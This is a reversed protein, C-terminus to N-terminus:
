HICIVTVPMFCTRSGCIMNRLFGKWGVCSKQWNKALSRVTSVFTTRHFADLRRFLMKRGSWFRAREDENESIRIYSANATNAIEEVREVLYNVEADPGDLEVVMLGEVDLPYGAHVFDEAAHIIQKDMLEMGGPIIGAAIVDAVCNGADIMTPFGILLARATEPKKLIRVTVETIVGLLGESGTIVGLLDLGGSDLHKGGLRIIEGNMM